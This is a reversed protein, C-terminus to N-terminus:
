HRREDKASPDNKESLTPFSGLETSYEVVVVWEGNQGPRLSVVETKFPSYEHVWREVLCRAELETM